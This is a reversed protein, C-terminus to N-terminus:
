CKISLQAHGVFQQQVEAAFGGDVGSPMKAMAGRHYDNESPPPGPSSGLTSSLLVCGSNGRFRVNLPLREVDAVIDQTPHGQLASTRPQRAKDSQRATVLRWWTTRVSLHEVRPIRGWAAHCRRVQRHPALLMDGFVSSRDAHHDRTRDDVANPACRVYRSSMQMASRIIGMVDSAFGRWVERPKRGQLNAYALGPTRQAVKM